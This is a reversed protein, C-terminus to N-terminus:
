RKFEKRDNTKLKLEKVKCEARVKALKWNQKIWHIIGIIIWIGTTIFGSYMMWRPWMPEYPVNGCVEKAHDMTQNWCEDVWGVQFLVGAISWAIFLIILVKRIEKWKQEWFYKWILKRQEDM